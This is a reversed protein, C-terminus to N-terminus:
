KFFRISCQVCVASLASTSSCFMHLALLLMVHVVFQLYLVAAVSHVRSFMISDLYIITFLRCLLTLLCYYYHTCLKKLFRSAVEFNQAGSILCSALETSPIWLYQASRVFNLRRPSRACRIKSGRIMLFIIVNLEEVETCM